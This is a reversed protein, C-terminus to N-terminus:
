EMLSKKDAFEDVNINAHLIGNPNLQASENMGHLRFSIPEFKWTRKEFHKTYCTSLQTYEEPIAQAVANM